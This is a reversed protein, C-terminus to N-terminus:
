ITRLIFEKFRPLTFELYGYSQSHIIGSKILRNRYVSFQNSTMNVEKRINEVKTEQLTAVAILVSKDKNSRESWIKSYAYDELLGDYRPLVETWPRKETWCLYGLVQYAFPYGKTVKAMSLAEADSLDFAEKYNQAILVLSLPQLEISPARYLFTLTKEDKLNKINDYLGTMILFVNLNERMFIQFQSIFVRVNENSTVEDITILIRKNLDTLRSLMRRLAVVTDTIPPVGDIELGFGLFSLNIKADRFIQLLEKRNSLEAALQNLLDREPNLDVVIWNKDKKLDNAIMTMAVTKGSGRVGTILCVQYSAQEATFSSIIDENQLNRDIVSIPEKGFSLSFPNQM